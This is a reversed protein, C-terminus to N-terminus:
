QRGAEILRILEDTRGILEGLQRQIQAARLPSPLMAEPLRPVDRATKEVFYHAAKLAGTLGKLTRPIKPSRDKVAQSFKERRGPEGTGIEEVHRLLQGSFGVIGELHLRIAARQGETPRAHDPLAPAAKICGEVDGLARGLRGPVKAFDRTDMPWDGADPRKMKYRGNPRLGAYVAARGMEYRQREPGKRGIKLVESVELCGGPKLMLALADVGCNRAVVEVAEALRVEGALSGAEVGHEPGVREIAERGPTGRALSLPSSWGDAEGRRDALYGPAIREVEVLVRLGRLFRGAKSGPESRALLDAIM